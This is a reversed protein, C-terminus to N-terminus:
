PRPPISGPSGTNECRDPRQPLKPLWELVLFSHFLWCPSPKTKPFFAYLSFRGSKQAVVQKARRSFRNRGVHYGAKALVCVGAKVLVCVGAEQNSEQNNEEPKGGPKRDM